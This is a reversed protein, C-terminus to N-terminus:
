SQRAKKLADVIIKRWTSKIERIVDSDCDEFAQRIGRRDTCDDYISKAIQNAIDRDKANQSM